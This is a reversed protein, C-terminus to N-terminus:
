YESSGSGQFPSYTGGFFKEFFGPNHGLTETKDEVIAVQKGDKETIRRIDVVRDENFKLTLVDRSVEKPAFFAIREIDSSMYIWTDKDLSVVSSPTGLVSIVETKSQGLQLKEIRDNTPMNGNHTIFWERNCATTTLTIALVAFLVKIRSM